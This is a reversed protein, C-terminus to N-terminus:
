MPSSNPLAPVVNRTAGLPQRTRRSSPILPPKAGPPRRAPRGPNWPAPRRPHRRAARSSCEASARVDRGRTSTDRRERARHRRPTRNGEGAGIDAERAGVTPPRRCRVDHRDRRPDWGSCGPGGSGRCRDPRKGGAGRCRPTGRSGKASESLLSEQDAGGDQVTAEVADAAHAIAATIEGRQSLAQAEAIRESLGPAGIGISEMARDLGYLADGPVADDAVAVGTMGTLLLAAGLGGALQRSLRGRHRPVTPASAVPSDHRGARVIDAAQLSFAAVVEDHPTTPGTSHLSELIAAFRALDERESGGGVLLLEVDQHTLGRYPMDSSYVDFDSM